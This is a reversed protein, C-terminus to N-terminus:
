TDYPLVVVFDSAREAATAANRDEGLMRYLSELMSWSTVLAPNLNVGRLFAESARQADRLRV